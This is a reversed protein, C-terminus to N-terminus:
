VEKWNLCTSAYQCSQLGSSLTSTTMEVLFSRMVARSFLTAITCQRIPGRQNGGSFLPVSLYCAIILGKSATLGLITTSYLPKAIVAVKGLSFPRSLINWRCEPYQDVKIAFRFGVEKTRSALNPVM